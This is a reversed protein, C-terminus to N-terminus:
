VTCVGTSGRQQRGPRVGSCQRVGVLRVAEELFNARAEKFSEYHEAPALRALRPRQRM